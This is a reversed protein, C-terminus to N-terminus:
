TVQDHIECKIASMEDFMCTYVLPSYQCVIIVIARVQLYTANSQKVQM